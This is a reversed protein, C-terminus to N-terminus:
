DSDLTEGQSRECSLKLNPECFAPEAETSEQGSTHPPGSVSFVLKAVRSKTVPWSSNSTRSVVTKGTLAFSLNFQEPSIM